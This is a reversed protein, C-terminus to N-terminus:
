LTGDVLNWQIAKINTKLSREPPKRREMDMKKTEWDINYVRVVREISVVSAVQWSCDTTNPM